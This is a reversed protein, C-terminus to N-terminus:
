AHHVQVEREHDLCPLRRRLESAREPEIAAIAVSPRDPCTCLVTGWPDIITSRGFTQRTASHQGVQAPAVIYCQNEIARARLLPMWHDRGTPITFAAPVFILNVDAKRLARFMGPFRLDYCITLGWRGHETDVVVARDGPTTGASEVHTAGPGLDVGFMSAPAEGNTVIKSKGAHESRE